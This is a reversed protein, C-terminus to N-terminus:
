ELKIIGCAVRDGANGTTKSLQNGGKGLDDPAAHVVVVRGIITYTGYLPINKDKITFNATGDAAVNFNGLDGAHVNDDNPGGHEKGLPNFHPGAAACGNSIDGTAHVHVGHLGPKLGSISGIITTPGKPQQNFNVIGKVGPKTSSLVAVAKVVQSEIGSFLCSSSVLIALLFALNFSNKKM